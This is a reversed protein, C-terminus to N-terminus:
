KIRKRKATKTEKENQKRKMENKNRKLHSFLHFFCKKRMSAFFIESRNRKMESRLSFSPAGYDCYQVSAVYQILGVVVRGCYLKHLRHSKSV